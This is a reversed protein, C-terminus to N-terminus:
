PVTQNKFDVVRFLIMGVCQTQTFIGAAEDQRLLQDLTLPTKIQTQDYLQQWVNQWCESVQRYLSTCQTNLSRLPLLALRLHCPRLAVLKSSTADLPM